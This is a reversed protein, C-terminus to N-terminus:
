ARTEGALEYGTVSSYANELTVIREDLRASQALLHVHTTRLRGIQARAQRLLRLDRSEFQGEEERDLVERGAIYETQESPGLTEGKAVRRHLQWWGQYTAEDM